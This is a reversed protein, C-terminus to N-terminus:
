VPSGVNAIAGRESDASKTPAFTKLRELSQCPGLFKMVFQDLAGVALWTKTFKLNKVLKRNANCSTIGIV